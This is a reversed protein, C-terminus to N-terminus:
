SVSRNFISFFIELSIFLASNTILNFNNNPIIRDIMNKEQRFMDSLKWISVKAFGARTM